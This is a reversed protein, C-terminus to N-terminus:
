AVMRSWSASKAVTPWATVASAMARAELRLVEMAAAAPTPALRGTLRPPIRKPRSARVVPVIRPRCPMTSHTTDTPLMAVMTANM